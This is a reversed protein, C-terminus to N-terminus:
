KAGDQELFARVRFVKYCQMEPYNCGDCPLGRQTAAVIGLCCVADETALPRLLEVARDARQGAALAREEAEEADKSWQTALGDLRNVDEVLDAIKAKQEAIAALLIPIAKIAEGWLAEHVGFEPGIGYFQVGLAIGDINCYDAAEIEGDSCFPCDVYESEIHREATSLDGPTAKALLEELRACIADIDPTM